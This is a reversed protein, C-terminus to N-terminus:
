YAATFHVFLHQQQIGRDHTMTLGMELGKYDTM